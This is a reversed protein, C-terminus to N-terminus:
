KGLCIWIGFEKWRKDVLERAEPRIRHRKRSRIGGLLKQTEILLQEQLRHGPLLITCGYIKYIEAVDHIAGFIEQETLYSRRKGNEIYETLTCNVHVSLFSLRPVEKTIVEWMKTIEKIEDKLQVVAESIDRHVLIRNSIQAQSLENWSTSLKDTANRIIFVDQALSAFGITAQTQFLQLAETLCENYKQGHLFFLGYLRMPWQKERREQISCKIDTLSQSLTSSARHIHFPQCLDLPIQARLKTCKVEVANILLYDVYLRFIYTMSHYIILLFSALQLISATDNIISLPDAMWPAVETASRQNTHHHSFFPRMVASCRIQTTHKFRGSSGAVKNESHMSSTVLVYLAFMLSGPRDPTIIRCVAVYFPSSIIEPWFPYRPDHGM